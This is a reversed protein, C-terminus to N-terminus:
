AKAYYATLIAIRPGMTYVGHTRTATQAEWLPRSHNIGRLVVLGASLPGCYYDVARGNFQDHTGQFALCTGNHIVWLQLGWPEFARGPPPLPQLHASLKIRTVSTSWPELLCLVSKALAGEAWCPDFVFHQTTFCRYAAAAIDSGPYCTGAFVHQVHYGAALQHSANVPRVYTLTTHPVWTPTSVAGAAPKAGRLPSLSSAMATPSSFAALLMIAAGVAGVQFRHKVASKQARLGCHRLVATLQQFRTCRKSVAGPSAPHPSTPQSSPWQVDRRRVHFESM